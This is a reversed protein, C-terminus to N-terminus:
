QHPAGPAGLWAAWILPLQGLGYVMHAAYHGVSQEPEFPWIPLPLVSLIAGALLNLLGWAVLAWQLAPRAAPWLWWALGLGLPLLLVTVWADPAPAGFELADHVLRGACSAVLAWAVVLTGPPTRTMADDLWVPGKLAVADKARPVGCAM